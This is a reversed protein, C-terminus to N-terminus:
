RDGGELKPAPRSFEADLEDADVVWQDGCKQACRILGSSLLHFAQKQNRDIAAGVAKAHEITSRELGEDACHKLWLKFVETLDTKSDAAHVGTAVEHLATTAWAEADKKLDFTKLRRKGHQDVYDVV